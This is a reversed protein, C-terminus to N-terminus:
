AVLKAADARWSSRGFWHVAYYFAAATAAGVGESQLADRLFDDALAKPKAQTAYFWDHVVAPRRSAGNPDLFPLNRFARPISALDTKFGDPVTILGYTPDRWILPRCVVWIDPQTDAELALKTLFM